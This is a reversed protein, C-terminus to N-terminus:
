RGLGDAVVVEEYLHRPGVCARQVTRADVEGLGAALGVLVCLLIGISDESTEIGQQDAADTSPLHIVAILHPWRDLTQHVADDFVSSVMRNQPVSLLTTTGIAFDDDEIFILGVGFVDHNIAPNWCSRGATGRGRTHVQQDTRAHKRAHTSAHKCPSPQWLLCNRTSAAAQQRNAFAFRNNGSLVASGREKPLPIDICSHVREHSVGMNGSSPSGKPLSTIDDPM